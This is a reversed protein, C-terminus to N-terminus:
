QPWGWSQRIVKRIIFWFKTAVICQAYIIAPKFTVCGMGVRVARVDEVLDGVSLCALQESVDLFHVQWTGRRQLWGVDILPHEAQLPCDAPVRRHLGLVDAPSEATEDAPDIPPDVVPRGVGDMVRADIKEKLAQYQSKLDRFEM